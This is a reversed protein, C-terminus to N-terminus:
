FAGGGSGGGFGGSSGSSNLTSSITSAASLDLSEYFTVNFNDCFDLALLEQEMYGKEFNTGLKKAVQKARGFSVAYPLVDEWVNMSDVDATNLNSIDKLMKKFGVIKKYQEIGTSTLEHKFFHFYCYYGLLVPIPTLVLEWEPLTNFCFIGIIFDCALYFIMLWLFIQEIIAKNKDFIGLDKVQKMIVHKWKRFEWNLMQDEGATKRIESVNVENNKGVILIINKLFLDEERPNNFWNQDEVKLKYDENETKSISIKKDRVLSLIYGTFAEVNPLSGKRSISQVIPVSLKPIDFNHEIDKPYRFYKKGKYMLQVVIILIIVVMWMIVSVVISATNIGLKRKLAIWREQSLVKKVINEDVKNTNNKTISTPFLTDVEVFNGKSVKPIHIKISKLAPDFTLKYNESSHCWTYKRLNSIKDPFSIKINVNHLDQQWQTGILQWNLRAADKYNTVGAHIIYRYNFTAKSDEPAYVKFKLEGFNKTVKCTGDEKSNNIPISNSNYYGDKIGVGVVSAGEGPLEQTYYVGNHYADTFDYTITRKVYLDGDSLVKVDVDMQDIKYDDDDDAHIHGFNLGIIGLFAVILITFWRRSKKKM